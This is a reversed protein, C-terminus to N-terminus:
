AALSTGASTPIVMRRRRPRAYARWPGRRGSPSTNDCRRLRLVGPMETRCGSPWLPSCTTMSSIWHLWAFQCRCNVSCRDSQRAKAPSTSRHYSGFVLDVTADVSARTDLGAQSSLRASTASRRDLKRESSASEVAPWIPGAVRVQRAVLLSAVGGILQVNAMAITQLDALAATWWATATTTQKGM